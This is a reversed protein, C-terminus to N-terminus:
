VRDCERKLIAMAKKEDKFLKDEMGVIPGQAPTPLFLGLAKFTEYVFKAEDKTM